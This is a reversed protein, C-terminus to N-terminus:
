SGTLADLELTWWDVWGDRLGFVADERREPKVDM